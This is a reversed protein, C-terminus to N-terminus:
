EIFTTEPKCELLQGVASAAHLIAGVTWAQAQTLALELEIRAGAM